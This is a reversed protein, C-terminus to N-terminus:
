PHEALWADLAPRPNNSLDPLAERARDRARVIALDARDLHAFAPAAAHEGRALNSIPSPSAHHDVSRLFSAEPDLLDVVLCVNGLNNLM